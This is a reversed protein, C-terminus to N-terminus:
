QAARKARIESRVYLADKNGPDLKLATEIDAAAKDYNGIM